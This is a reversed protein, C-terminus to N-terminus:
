NQDRPKTPYPCLDELPCSPCLPQRAKCYRRGHAMFYLPIEIYNEVAFLQMLDLRIRAYKANTPTLGLRKSVREVHTDVSITSGGFVSLLVDATKPGVNPLKQLEIRADEIPKRLIIPLNFSGQSLLQSLQRLAKSKQKHLGAFRIARRIDKTDAMALKQTTIGIRRDLDRYAKIAAIDTCNQSLITVVLVRFPDHSEEAVLVSAFDGSSIPLRRKLVRLIRAARRKRSTFTELHEHLSPM